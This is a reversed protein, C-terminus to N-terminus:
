EEDEIEALLAKLADKLGNRSADDKMVIRLTKNKELQRIISNYGDVKSKEESM